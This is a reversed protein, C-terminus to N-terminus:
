LLEEGRGSIEVRRSDPIQMDLLEPCRPAQCAVRLAVSHVAALVKEVM